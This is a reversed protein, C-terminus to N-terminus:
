LEKCLENYYNSYWTNTKDFTTSYKRHEFSGVEVLTSSIYNSKEKTFDYTAVYATEGIRLHNEMSYLKGKNYETLDDLLTFKIEVSNHLNRKAETWSVQVKPFVCPFNDFYFDFLADICDVGFHNEPFRVGKRPFGMFWEGFLIMDFVKGYDPILIEKSNKQSQKKM